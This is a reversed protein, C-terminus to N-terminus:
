SAIFLGSSSIGIIYYIGSNVNVNDDNSLYQKTKKVFYIDSQKTRLFYLTKNKDRKTIWFRFQYLAIILNLENCRFSNFDTAIRIGQCYSASRCENFIPSRLMNWGPNNIPHLCDNLSFSFYMANMLVSVIIKIFYLDGVSGINYVPNTNIVSVYM